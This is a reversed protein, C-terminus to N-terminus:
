LVKDVVTYVVAFVLLVGITVQEWRKLPRRRSRARKEYVEGRERAERAIAEEAAKGKSNVWWSGLVLM